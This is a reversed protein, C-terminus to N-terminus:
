EVQAFTVGLQHTVTQVKLTNNILDGPRLDAGCVIRNRIQKVTLGGDTFQAPQEFACWFTGIVQNVGRIPLKTVHDIKDLHRSQVAQSTMEFLRFMKQNLRQTEGYDHRALLYRQGGRTVIVDGIKALAHAGTRLLRRPSDFNDPPTRTEPKVFEGLFQRGDVTKLHTMLSRGVDNINM